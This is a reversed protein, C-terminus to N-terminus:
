STTPPPMSRNEEKEESKGTFPLKGLKCNVICANRTLRDLLAATLTPDGFLRTWDAFGLNTTVIMSGREYHDAMIQFLLQSGEKPFPMYGLEDLMVPGTKAYRQISRSLARESRSEILENVLESGTVFHSRIGQRCVEIGLAIARRTKGTEAKGTFIVNRREQIYTGTKLEEILRRDLDPSSRVLARGAPVNSDGVAVM